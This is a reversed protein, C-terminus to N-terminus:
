KHSIRINNDRTHNGVVNKGSRECKRSTSTIRRPTIVGIKVTIKIKDIQPRVQSNLEKDLIVISSSLDLVTSEIEGNKVKSSIFKIKDFSDSLLGRLTEKVIHFSKGFHFFRVTKISTNKSPIKNWPQTSFFLFNGFLQMSSLAPIRKGPITSFASPPTLFIPPIFPSDSTSNYVENLDL